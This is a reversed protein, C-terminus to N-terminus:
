AAVLSVSIAIYLFYDRWSIKWPVRGGGAAYAILYFGALAVFFGAHGEGAGWVLLAIAVLTWAVRQYPPLDMRSRM